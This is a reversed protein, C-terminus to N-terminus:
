RRPRSGRPAAASPASAQAKWPEERFRAALFDVLLKIRRPTSATHPALWHVDADAMAYGPLVRVLEGSTLAAAIDWLSRLM